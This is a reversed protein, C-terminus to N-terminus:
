GTRPSGSGLRDSSGEPKSFLGIPLPVFLGASTATQRYLEQMDEMECILCKTSLHGARKIRREDDLTLGPWYNGLWLVGGVRLFERILRSGNSKTEHEHLRQPFRGEGTHGVYHRILRGNPNKLPVTSHLLYVAM